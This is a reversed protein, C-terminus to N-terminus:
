AGHRAIAIHELRDETWKIPRGLERSVASVAVDERGVANKLGFGGGVDAALVRIDEMPIDLMPSLIMRPMHPSQTSTHLTLKETEADWDAITGRCEMPMPHHRHVSVSATIVRDAKAFVGEIDGIIM